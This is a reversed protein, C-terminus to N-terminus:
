EGRIRRLMSNADSAYKGKPYHNLYRQLEKEAPKYEKLFKYYVRGARYQAEEAKDAHPYDIVIRKYLAVAKNLAEEKERGTKKFVGDHQNRWASAWLRNAAKNYDHGVVPYKEDKLKSLEDKYHQLVGNVNKNEKKLREVEKLLLKYAGQYEGEKALAGAEALIDDTEAWGPSLCLLQLIIVFVFLKM